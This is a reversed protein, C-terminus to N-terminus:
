KHGKAEGPFAVEVTKVGRPRDDTAPPECGDKHAEAREMLQVIRRLSAASSSTAIAAIARSFVYPVVAVACAMAYAAAEQPASLKAGLTLLIIFAGAAAGLATIAWLFPM